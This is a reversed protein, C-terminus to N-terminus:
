FAWPANVGLRRPGVSVRQPWALLQTSLTPFGSAGRWPVVCSNDFPVRTQSVLLYAARPSRWLKVLEHFYCGGCRLAAVSLVMLSTVAADASLSFVCMCFDSQPGLPGATIDDWFWHQGWIKGPRPNVHPEFLSPLNFLFDQFLSIRHHKPWSTVWLSSHELFGSETIKPLKLEKSLRFWKYHTIQNAEVPHSSPFHLLLPPGVGRTM